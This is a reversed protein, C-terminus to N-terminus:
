QCPQPKMIKKYLQYNQNPNAIMDSKSVTIVELSATLNTDDFSKDSIEILDITVDTLASFTSDSSGLVKLHSLPSYSISSRAQFFVLLDMIPNTILALGASAGPLSKTTLSSRM